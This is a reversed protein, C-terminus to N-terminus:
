YNKSRSVLTVLRQIFRVEVDDLNAVIQADIVRDFDYFILQAGSFLERPLHEIL